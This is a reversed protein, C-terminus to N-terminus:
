SGVRAVNLESAASNVELVVKVGNAPEIRKGILVADRSPLANCPHLVESFVKVLNVLIIEPRVLANNQRSTTNDQSAPPISRILDVEVYTNGCSTMKSPYRFVLILYFSLLPGKMRQATSPASSSNSKSSSQSCVIDLHSSCMFMFMFRCVKSNIIPRSCIKRCQYPIRSDKCIM